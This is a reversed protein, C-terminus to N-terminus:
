GTIKKTTKFDIKVFQILKNIGGDQYILKAQNIIKPNSSGLLLKFGVKKSLESIHNLFNVRAIISAAAVAVYKNEAKTEFHDILTPNPINLIKFYKYYNERDAYQDMVISVDKNIDNKNMLQKITKDHMCTKIAHTNHFKHVLENYKEPSYVLCEYDVLKILTTYMRIMREDTLNKSDKVGLDILKSENEKKLYVACTVLGGFYDGVGVEDCGIYDKSVPKPHNTNLVGLLKGGYGDADPGQILMRNTNFISITKRGVKFFYKLNTSPNPLRYQNLNAVVQQLEYNNLVKVFSQM